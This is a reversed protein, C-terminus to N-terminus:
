NLDLAWMTALQKRQHRSRLPVLDPVDTLSVSVTLRTGM